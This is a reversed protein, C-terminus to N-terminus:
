EIFFRAFPVLIALSASDQVGILENTSARCLMRGGAKREGQMENVVRLSELVEAARCCAFLFCITRCFESIRVFFCEDILHNACELFVLRRLDGPFQSGDASTVIPPSAKSGNFVLNVAGACISFVAKDPRAKGM